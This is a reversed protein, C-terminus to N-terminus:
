QDVEVESRAGRVAHPASLRNGTASVCWDGPTADCRECAQSLQYERVADNAARNTLHREEEDRQEAIVKETEEMAVTIGDLDANMVMHALVRKIVRNSMDLIVPHHTVWQYDLHAPKDSDWTMRDIAWDLPDREETSEANM